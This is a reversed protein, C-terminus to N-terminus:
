VITSDKETNKPIYVLRCGGVDTGNIMDCCFLGAGDGDTNNGGFSCWSGGGVFLQDYDALDGIADVSSKNGESPFLLWDYKESNYGFASCYGGEATFGCFEGFSGDSQSSYDEIRIKIKNPNDGYGEGCVHRITNTTNGYPNEMGRYSISTKGNVNYETGNITTSTAKGSKNGLSSTAGTIAIESSNSMNVVGKGLYPQLNCTGYEIMMLLQNASFVRIDQNHWCEGRHQASEEGTWSGKIEPIVNAISQLLYSHEDLQTFSGEYASYLIYRIENGETDYFAPHLKFGPKPTSSIYYNAKRIHYGLGNEQKELKVPAVRYYFAPQYVMVQGNSGDDRYDDRELEIKINIKDSTFPYVFFQFEGSYGVPGVGETTDCYPWGKLTYTAGNSGGFTGFAFITGVESYHPLTSNLIYSEGTTVNDIYIKMTSGADTPHPTTTLQVSINGGNEVTEDEPAGEGFEVETDCLVVGGGYVSNITGDDAVNCRVRDRYMAFQNFDDGPTLDKAGALRKFDNNEFDAELGIIDDDTYGLFSELESLRDYIGEEGDEGYFGAQVQYNLGEFANSLEGFGSGMGGIDERISIFDYGIQEITESLPGDFGEPHIYNGETTYRVDSANVEGSVGGGVGLPISVITGDQQKVKMIKM